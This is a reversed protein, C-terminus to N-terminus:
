VYAVLLLTSSLDDPVINVANHPYLNTKRANPADEPAMPAKLLALLLRVVSGFADWSWVGEKRASQDFCIRDM